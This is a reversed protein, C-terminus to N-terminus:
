RVYANGDHNVRMVKKMFWQDILQATSVPYRAWSSHPNGPWDASLTTTESGLIGALATVAKEPAFSDDKYGICLAPLSGSYDMDPAVRAFSGSLIAHAWERILTRAQPGGFGVYQGPMYGFLYSLSSFLGAGLLIKIAGMGEWNRFHIHGGAVTVLADIDVRSQAVALTAVQAGLSHGIVLVPCEDAVKRAHEVLKPLYDDILDRYGYDAAWSPRPLSAGTGPLEALLVSYNVAVLQEAFPRYFRAATGMAPLVVLVAKAEDARYVTTAISFSSVEFLNDTTEINVPLDYRMM